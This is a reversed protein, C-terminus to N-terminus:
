SDGLIQAGKVKEFHVGLQLHSPLKGNCTKYDEDLVWPFEGSGSEHESVMDRLRDVWAKALRNSSFIFHRPLVQSSMTHRDAFEISKWNNEECMMVAVRLLASGLGIYRYRYAVTLARIFAAYNQGMPPQQAVNPMDFTTNSDDCRVVRMVLTAIIVTQYRVIVVVDFTREHDRKHSRLLENNRWKEARRINDSEDPGFLWKWTGTNEALDLYGAMSSRILLLAAMVAGTCTLIIRGYDSSDNYIGWVIGAFVSGMMIWSLWHHIISRAVVQRQQAISEAILKLAAILDERDTSISTTVRSNRINDNAKESTTTNVSQMTAMSPPLDKEDEKDDVQNNPPESIIPPVETKGHESVSTFSDPDSAMDSSKSNNQMHHAKRTAIIEDERQNQSLCVRAM